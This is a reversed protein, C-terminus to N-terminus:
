GEIKEKKLIIKIAKLGSRFNIAAIIVFLVGLLIYYPLLDTVFIIVLGMILLLATNAIMKPLKMDMMVIKKTDIARIIFIIVFSAFAAIAAGHLGVTKILVINLVINVAAGIAATLMSRMSKKSAVYVSGMFTSFCTFSVSLILFPTYLYASEFEAECFLQIAIRIVLMLGAAIVYVFSQFINFVNTYFSAITRSNNETIASM